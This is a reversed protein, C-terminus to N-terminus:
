GKAPHRGLFPIRRVVEPQHEVIGLLLAGIRPLHREKLDPTTPPVPWEHKRFQLGNQRLEFSKDVSKRPRGRPLHPRCTVREAIPGRIRYTTCPPATQNRVVPQVLRCRLRHTANHNPVWPFDVAEERIRVGTRLRQEGVEQPVDEAVGEARYRKIGAPP